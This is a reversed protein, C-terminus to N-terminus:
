SFGTYRGPRHNMALIMNLIYAGLISLALKEPPLVFLAAALIAGDVALQFYGARIGYREQLYIAILNIGGLGTRHRFLVLLGLGMVAGGFVAAYVPQLSDIVIWEPTLRSFLSVFAIALFTRLTPRWGLRWVAIGFFPVNIAFFIIPFELSTIFSLLLALGAMGSTLIEAQTYFQIGLAVLLPGLVLAIADEHLRHRDAAPEDAAGAAAARRAAEQLRDAEVAAIAEELAAQETIVSSPAPRPDLRDLQDALAARARGYARARGSASADELGDVLREIVPRYDTM